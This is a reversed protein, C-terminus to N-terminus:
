NKLFERIMGHATDPDSAFYNHKQQPLIVFKANPIGKALIDSSMRHTM